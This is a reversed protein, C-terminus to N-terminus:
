TEGRMDAGCYPCYKYDNQLLSEADGGDSIWVAKQCHSCIWLECNVPNATEWGGQNIWEGHVVPVVDASPISEIKKLLLELAAKYDGDCMFIEFGTLGIDSRKIYEDAM